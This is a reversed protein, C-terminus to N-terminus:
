PQEQSSHRSSQSENARSRTAMAAKRLPFSIATWALVRFVVTANESSARFRAVDKYGKIQPLERRSMGQAQGSSEALGRVSLEAKLTTEIKPEIKEWRFRRMCVLCNRAPAM